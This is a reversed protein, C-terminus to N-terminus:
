PKRRNRPADVFELGLRYTGGAPVRYRVSVPASQNEVWAVITTKFPMPDCCEIGMGSSSIDRCTGYALGHGNRDRWTLRVQHSAPRRESGRSNALFRFIRRLLRM